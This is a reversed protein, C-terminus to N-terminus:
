RFTPAIWRISRESFEREAGRRLAQPRRRPDPNPRREEDAALWAM